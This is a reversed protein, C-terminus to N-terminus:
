VSEESLKKEHRAQKLLSQAEEDGPQLAAAISLFHVAQKWNKEEVATRAKVMQENFMRASREDISETAPPTLHATNEAVPAPSAPTPAEMPIGITEAMLEDLSKAAPKAPEPSSPTPTESPADMGAFLSAFPDASKEEAPAPQSPAPSPPIVVTEEPESKTDVSKFMSSLLDDINVTDSASNDAAPSASTPTPPIPEEKVPEESGGFNIGLAEFSVTDDSTEQPAPPASPTSPAISVTDNSSDETEPFHTFPKKPAESVSEEDDSGFATFGGLGTLDINDSDSSITAAPPVSEIAPSSDLQFISDDGSLSATPDYNSTSEQAEPFESAFAPDAALPDVNYSESVPTYPESTDLDEYVENGKRKKLLLGAIILLLLGGGGYLAYKGNQTELFSKDESSALDTAAADTPSVAIAPAPTVEAPAALVSEAPENSPFPTVNARPTRLPSVSPGSQNGTRRELISTYNPILPNAPNSRKVEELKQKALDYNGTGMADRVPQIDKQDQETAAARNQASSNDSLPLDFQAPPLAAPSTPIADIVPQGQLPALQPAEQQASIVAVTSLAIVTFSGQLIKILKM